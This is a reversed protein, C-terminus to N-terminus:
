GGHSASDADLAGFEDDILAFMEAASATTLEPGTRADGEEDGGDHPADSWTWLLQRLREAILAREDGAPGAAATGALAAELRDLEALVPLVPRDTDPVLEARLWDALAAPTPHDFILTARLRLGAAAGLRNRLEVGILSDFGLEKFSRDPDVADASAHGLVAAVHKRVLDSVAHARQGVPLEALLERLPRAADGERAARKAPTRVLGHLIPQLVGDLAAAQLATHDLRAALVTADSHIAADFLALGEDDSLGAVGARGLRALENADLGGTLESATEWRGWAISTGPLGEARRRAALADLFANAAAYNAQGPGGLLGAASSFLVLATPGDGHERTLADLHAAADAKPGFVGAIREPTLSEVLGDDLAGAAHVVADFRHGALLGAVADRDAVDCAVVAVRAGAEVLEDALERAGPADPGRRSTLVLDLVGHRRVLHRAVLAGLTGTGGTILVRSDPGWTPAADEHATDAAPEDRTLRPVRPAGDVLAVYPEGTAVAAALQADTPGTTGGAAPNEPEADVLVFRDPHEAQASRVLGFAAALEPDAHAGRGVLVLRSGGFREDALWSQALALSRLTPEHAGPDLAASSSTSAFEYVVLDPAVTDLTNPLEGAPGLRLVTPAPGEVPDDAPIWRVRYLGDAGATGASRLLEEAVPRFVLSGASAIPRGSEDAVDLSVADPGASALRVRLASAGSGHLTVGSWMFPLRIGSDPSTREGEARLFVAHLAADLLAPHVGFGAAPTEEPLAVEAFVEDGRRWVRRLGQFVPGYGYGGRLLRDYFGDVDVPVAGTPPWVAADADASRGRDDKAERALVGTAHRRWEDEGAETGGADGPEEARSYIGLQRYGAEDPASVSVHLRVAGDETLVIPAEVVLEEVSACGVQDAARVALDVFATGPVLIAGLVAHDALWPHTRVSLRGTFAFGGSDPLAVAAGLLAHGASGLGLGAVDTSPSEVSKLWYHEHQFAYTPLEVVRAGTGAFAQSWDVEVGHAFAEGLSTLFRDLGGENRRLSGLTVADSDADDLTGQVGVTLVPHASSEVFAGIGDALLARTALDFRVPERLNRFWYGADLGATDLREGTVASYFPVVSSRPVIPALIELLEDRLDEVHTSHSAYDVPIRRAEVGVEAGLAAILEELADPDGSVVTSTPGNVTAVGVRGAWRSLREEVEALPLPVSVMGGRGALSRAIAQSRLAVVRAADSLTLGGAVCAAAIEGQSHGVVAAPVVGFSRWLEALSVMVAFLVPQVVDVRDLSPADVGGRLVEVLSWDVFEALAAECEAVRAAFVPAADLLEAAMGVWQSGQGPFVLAVARGAAPGTGVALDSLGALLTDRDTGVVVARHDFVSRTRALSWGIDIPTTDPHAVVFERLRAAQDRLGTASRASLPWPVAPTSGTPEAESKEAAPEPEAQELIAHANTGSIGFSSVGARRPADREPWERAETLLSVTGSSWDIHPSPEDAHLTRPLAGRRLAEVMKIVGAVGAAAQAHGINSKLSGLWLPREADRDRGYTASLAQAEIPDGLATGTGHAEVADVDGASLRADALAAEIVRQQSPGNPATLGNSAGDQNVATGRVVALVRHGNRRADSLRELVLMGVGEASGFGDADAGFAKCRGDVALGRQKSFAVFMGPASMVTVGGALAMACEDHRLAQVALHLAVLSSSCATDVTIAPGELGFTYSIRGSIVSAANGTLLHGELGTAGDGPRGAYDQAIAGVFVGTRSGRVTDPDIGAREFAEWSTELLLRQQPDMALAERPSIGFFAADFEGADHLFGGQRTYSTGPHEPDPDYLGALDWGRDQPFGTIADGGRSVLRWLDDPSAVDGPFRCGMGVIAIPEHDSGPEAAPRAPTPDATTDFLRDHLYQALVAPTPYDFVLTAPLRLGTAANLRNRLEVATLSDFGLEKFARDKDVAAASGHGLVTAVQVRVLERLADAREAATNGALRQALATGGAAPGAAVTRRTRTRVLGRLLHPTASTAAERPTSLDLRTPVLAPEDLALAADLLALGQETTLPILGGRAMRRLDGESLHGTMGTSQAWLGWALSVGPLGRAHRREALADLFANAAAYNAQGPGGFTGAASSFLVFMALDADATLEDLHVAADVKARFVADIRDPTLSEIVGDDLVGAAHVVGTLPHEPAIAALVEALATRDGVDAAAFAVEAGSERLEAALEAAGPADAGRRSLLLLNRAGQETVLHRALLGGLAGSAGTILVTGDPDPTRPVRLVLKGVHRAERLHRMADPARRLDWASTPLPHLAGSECLALIETLIEHIRDPGADAVLDFARYTVGPREAAVADADRIDTKGMEVFRGGPALLALSEDVFERALSNLVVDFGRGDGATAFREGFGVSRSSALREDGLGTAAWKAPSATGWIEAGLHRAVQVAAMGVGGAAAHVLLSEGRRLGALDVLGYYATAFVVPVSAAQEFSWGTPVRVVMRADAVALPGFAGAFLGMVRDGPTLDHVGPGIEVVVGAGESGLSAEGPYMGLAILVDRFNLGAARVAVRVQGAALPEEGDRDPLLALEALSGDASAALRWGAVDTPPLLATTEAARVLRPAYVTGARVALQPEDGALAGNLVDSPIAEGDLDLLVIRGPHEAQASRVLGRAAAVSPDAGTTAGGRTVLVLRADAFREDAVWRQVLALARSTAARAAQAPEVGADDAGLDVFVLEPVAAGDALAADADAAPELGDLGLDTESVGLHVRRGAPTADAAPELPIWDTRFLADRTNVTPRLGDAAVPRAVLSAISAVPNGTADAVLVSVTDPGAATVRVRLADAGTAHLVVDSWAFPLRVEAPAGGTTGLLVAHLAADLLAPHLGFDAPSVGEPLTVEAFVDEGARWARRLGRFVPGYGLGADALGSYLGSTDLEEAGAPPWTTLGQVAETAAVGLVGSAHRTWPEESGDADEPRSYVDFTRRGSEDAASTALHVQVAGHEPLLLPAELTLEELTPCGVRDGAQIALEVFATGPLLVTGHVAHDALWPQTRVSLRGTLLVGGSEPMSIAAGLLPHRPAGLGLQRADTLGEVNPLWYHEHQFAYTPLEAARVTTATFAPSWDVDVGNVFAEGLSTLFRDPGGENRRLSGLTVADSDADDLTGQVGVTLVPHASSEVFAGIGDVLLARTALDFRVPERLNRFWYAADLGATDLREGTVASYFPVVSSRPVIPGLIELLEDRLDEVHTSHSAYDVPIRRARVDEAEYGAVLEDLADPDGSVVTSAPGNVAAIGIRGAWGTLREEVEGLPLPVSVMGGRGALSRAIAQSRLAVVRAADSLTLGGAVCAAAIEGQSHGVVAAPVVGFSRWLEALSVMVAFLVPQVVDVRDLSPAQAGDRLVEVLSWDVFEALAAECEAIRAAFVPSADLLEAAMGVWQSGQGPFVLAVPRGIGGGGSLVREDTAMDAVSLSKLGAVFEDREVGLIVARHEFASRSRALAHGVEAVSRQSGGAVFEALRAAQDTLARETRGSVVWPITRGFAGASADVADPAPGAEPEEEAAPAQQLITHANTGSMGFSSVAARRPRGTEPWAVQEALLSVAGTSWDVRDTPRDVHLTRPLVGHRLAQVMKIVGGVGAAAQTHGVNSKLSGLWLPREADRDRGYTALLAQAEIPDGLATGTGHAEVADVDGASLRADALAAEIVRQQSPGNPATLGNSAGDQNIASGRVVALVTRGNRRADSLRELVLIGVGEASGFGDADAAFAKCRGDASLGRQRSFGVFTSPTAMVTAGGALALACEGHRLARVALHLAVLSSSCATDVTVAPGELGLTYSLRGSAVSTARGTVLFGELNAATAEDMRVAYDQFMAGIYAGTGSGRISEPRIGARELAEWSTELLLRQQPDMALAERPSIGFFAADFEGADHLFGGTRAYSTGVHDPDDDFLTELDWGRNDPFGTIGDGGEAVLRWLDEPSSVGGPFRCGMGVIAIPEHDSEEAAALRRRTERLDNTVRKLYDRLKEENANAM